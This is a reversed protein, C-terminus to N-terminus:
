LSLRGRALQRLLGAAVGLAAGAACWLGIYFAYGEAYPDYHGMAALGGVLAGFLITFLFAIRHAGSWHLPNM